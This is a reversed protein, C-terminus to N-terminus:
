AAIAKVQIVMRIKQDPHILPPLNGYVPSKQMHNQVAKQPMQILRRSLIFPQPIDGTIKHHFLNKIIHRKPTQPNRRISLLFVPIVPQSLLKRHKCRFTDVAIQLFRCQCLSRPLLKHCRKQHIVMLEPVLLLFGPCLLCPLLAPFIDPVTHLRLHLGKAPFCILVAFAQSLSNPHFIAPAIIVPRKQFPKSNQLFLYLHIRVAKIRYKVSITHLQIAIHRQDLWVLGPLHSFDLIKDDHDISRHGALSLQHLPKQLFGVINQGLLVTKEPLDVQM